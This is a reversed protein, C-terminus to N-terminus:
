YRARPLDEFYDKFTSPVNKKQSQLQSALTEGEELQYRSVGPGERAKFIGRTPLHLPGKVAGWPGKVAGWILDLGSYPLNPLIVGREPAWLFSLLSALSSGKIFSNYAQGM